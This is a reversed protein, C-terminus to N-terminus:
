LTSYISRFATVFSMSKKLVSSFTEFNLVALFGAKLILPKMTRLLIMVLLIRAKPPYVDWNVCHCKTFLEDGANSLFQGPVCIFFIVTLAASSIVFMKLAMLKDSDILVVVTSGTIVLTIAAGLMIVFMMSETLFHLIEHLKTTRQHQQIFYQLSKVLFDHANENSESIMCSYVNDTKKLYYQLYKLEGIILGVASYQFINLGGLMIIYITISFIQVAYLHYFYKEEDVFFEAHVPLEKHFTQNGPLYRTLLTPIVVPGFTFVVHVPIFLLILILGFHNSREYYKKVLRRGFKDNNELIKKVYVVNLVIKDYNWIMFIYCYLMTASVIGQFLDELFLSGSAGYTITNEIM